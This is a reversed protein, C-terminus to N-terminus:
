GLVGALQEQGQWEEGRQQHEPSEKAAVDGSTPEREQHGAQLPRLLPLPPLLLLLLLLLPTEQDV